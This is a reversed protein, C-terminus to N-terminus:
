KVTNAVITSIMSPIEKKIKLILVSFVIMGVILVLGLGAIAYILYQPNFSTESKKKSEIDNEITEQIKTIKENLEAELCEITQNGKSDFRTTLITKTERNVSYLTTDKLIYNYKPVDLTTTGGKKTRETIETAKDTRTEDKTTLQKMSKCSFFFTTLFLILILKKM